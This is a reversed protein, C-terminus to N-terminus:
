EQSKGLIKAEYTQIDMSGRLAEEAAKLRLQQELQEYDEVKVWRQWDTFAGDDWLRGSHVTVENDLLTRDNM